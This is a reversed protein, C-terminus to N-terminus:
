LAIRGPLAAAGPLPFSRGRRTAQKRARVPADSADPDAAVDGHELARIKMYLRVNVANVLVLVIATKIMWSDIM